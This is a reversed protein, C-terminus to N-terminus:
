GTAMESQSAENRNKGWSGDGCTAIPQLRNQVRSEANIGLRYRLATPIPGSRIGFVTALCDRLPEPDFDPDRRTLGESKPDSFCNKFEVISVSSVALRTDEKFLKFSGFELLMTEGIKAFAVM